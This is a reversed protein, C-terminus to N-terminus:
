SLAIQFHANRSTPILSNANMTIMTKSAASRLIVARRAMPPALLADNKVFVWFANEHAYNEVGHAQQGSGIRTHWCHDLDNHIPTSASLQTCKTANSCVTLPVKPCTVFKRM